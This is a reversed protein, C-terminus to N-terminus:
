VSKDKLTRFAGLSALAIMLPAFNYLYRSNAEWLILFLTLGLMALAPIFWPNGWNKKRLSQFIERWMFIVLVIWYLTEAVKLMFWGTINGEYRHSGMDLYDFYRNVLPNEHHYTYFSSNLDGFTWTYALKRGIQVLVGVLGMKKLNNLFLTKDAKNKAAYTPFSASYKRIKVDFGGTKNEPAWSMAIWHMLPLNHANNAKQSFAPESTVTTKVVEHGALFLVAFLPVILLVQKWKRNICLFFLVSILIIAVTPKFEYGIVIFLCSLFYWFVRKQWNEAKLAYIAFLLGFIVFPLTMTDTYLQAGYFYFPIFGVAAANYLLAIKRSAMKKTILSGGLVSASTFFSSVATMVWIKLQINGAFPAFFQNFLIGFFQNNSYRLFYGLRSVTMPLHSFSRGRLLTTSDFIVFFDWNHASDPVHIIFFFPLLFMVAALIWFSWRYFHKVRDVTFLSLRQILRFLLTFYLLSVIFILNGLFLGVIHDTNWNDTLVIAIINSLLWLVAFIATWKKNPKLKRWKKM